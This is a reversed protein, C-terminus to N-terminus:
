EGSFTKERITKNGEGMRRKAKNRQNWIESLCEQTPYEVEEEDASCKLVLSALEGQQHVNGGLKREEKFPDMKEAM